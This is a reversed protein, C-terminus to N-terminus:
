HRLAVYEDGLYAQIMKENQRIEATTGSAVTKGQVLLHVRDSIGMVVDMNHEVLLVSIGNDRILRELRSIFGGISQRDLGVTPEDLLLLRPEAALTRALSLFRQEAFSLDHARDALRHGLGLGALVDAVRDRAERWERMTTVDRVLAHWLGNARLRAGALANDLVTMGQFVRPDQFTRGIGRRAVDHPKLADIRAGDFWVEGSSAAALKTIVNFVTTKGAGNPGVLSTISGAAVAFSVDSLAMLGGFNVSLLKVDLIAM